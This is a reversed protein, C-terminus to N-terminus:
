KSSWEKRPDARLPRGSDFKALIGHTSLPCRRSYQFYKDMPDYGLRWCAVAEDYGRSYEIRIDQTSGWKKFTFYARSDFHIAEGKKLALAADDFGADYAAEMDEFGTTTESTRM